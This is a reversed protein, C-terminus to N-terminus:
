HTEMQFDLRIVMQIVTLSDKQIEMQSDMRSDYHTVSHTEM